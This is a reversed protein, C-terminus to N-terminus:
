EARAVEKARQLASKANVIAGTKSLAGFRVTATGGPRTVQRDRYRTATDLIVSRVETASLSPYYAMILAALGSVMPAAMSTGDNREYQNNPVTSYISHGPAFVDVRDDGYNSFPAALQKGGKWSSAGVEIWRRAQGGNAYYPSPFNNTSDVNAGDNGAAHVMLVGMSDAYQVAADVVEKHPSYKKGFSMNIVDAGNDVAYRIANAVDKDREDGNPVTRIPMLRVGRAIGETGLGNQRTAGVIGAVHTGHTADPGEVDNNGYRRETKDAYDDGVIPRPNFDPNYNYEVQRELQDRYERLDKPSLGQDYFYRLTKQARQVPRRPSSVSRVTEATLTDTELHKKLIQVSNQVAAQAKKVRALRRKAQKRKKQFTQKLKQYRRYAERNTPAVDASDTDAFREHLDAYLRTLEYTDQNVHKGDPGGIFNWGHVDDTYGNNDDDVGNGPVEDANTWTEAALDEHEIDIGSDIIAVRVTDQPARDQLVTQYAAETNLGPGSRPVRDLHYWDQPARSPAPPAPEDPETTEDDTPSSETQSSETQSSATTTDPSTPTTAPQSGSCGVLLLAVLLTCLATAQKM